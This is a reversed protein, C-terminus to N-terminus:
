SEFDVGARRGLELELRVRDADGARHALEPVFPRTGEGFCFDFRALMDAADTGPPLAGRAFIAPVPPADEPADPARLTYRDGSHIHVDGGRDRVAERFLQWDADAPKPGDVAFGWFDAAHLTGLLPYVWLHRGQAEADDEPPPKKPSGAAAGEPRPAM